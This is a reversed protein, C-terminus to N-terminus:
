GRSSRMHCVAKALEGARYSSRVFPGSSVQLIGAALAWEAYEDFREPEVYRDVPHHHRTPRLYQGITVIECSVEALDDLLERIQDDSEGVGVMLGSKTVVNSSNRKATALVQLSRDYDAQPRLVRSVERVTEVNHNFVTPGAELVTCILEENGHFDPTLVEVGADPLALRIARITAAFHGAGEDPLDDRTVSTVVVFSLGLEAASQAVREPEEADLPTIVHGDCLHDVACFGCNRTCTSGMLMFTATGRGFCEGVNPCRASQCVTCINHQELLERTDMGQRHKGTKVRLWEPLPTHKIEGPTQKTEGPTHKTEDM